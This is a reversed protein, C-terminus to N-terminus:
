FGIIWRALRVTIAIVVIAICVLILIGVAEGTQESPTKNM